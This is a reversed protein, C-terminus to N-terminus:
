NKSQLNILIRLGVAALFISQVLRELMTGFRMEVQGRLFSLMEPQCNGKRLLM